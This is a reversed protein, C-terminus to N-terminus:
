PACKFPPASDTAMWGALAQKGSGNVSYIADRANITCVFDWWGLAEFRKAGASGVEICYYNRYTDADARKPRGLAHHMDDYDADTPTM